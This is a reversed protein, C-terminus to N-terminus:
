SAKGSVTMVAFLAYVGEFFYKFVKEAFFSVGVM